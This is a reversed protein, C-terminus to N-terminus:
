ISTHNILKAKKFDIIFKYCISIVYWFRLAKEATKFGANQRRLKIFHM